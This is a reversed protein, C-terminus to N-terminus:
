DSVSSQVHPVLCRVLSVLRMVEETSRKYHLEDSAEHIVLKSEGSNRIPTVTMACNLLRLSLLKVIRTDGSEWFYNIFFKFPIANILKEYRKDDQNYLRKFFVTFSHKSLYQLLGNVWAPAKECRGVHGIAKCLM